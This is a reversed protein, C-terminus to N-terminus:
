LFTGDLHKRKSEKLCAGPFWIGVPCGTQFQKLFTWDRPSFKLLKDRAQKLSDSHM